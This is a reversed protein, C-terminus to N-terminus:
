PAAKDGAKIFAAPDQQAPFVATYRACDEPNLAALANSHETVAEDYAASARDFAAKARDLAAGAKSQAANARDRAAHAAFAHKLAASAKTTTKMPTDKM